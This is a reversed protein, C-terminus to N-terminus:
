ESGIRVREQAQRMRKTVHEVSWEPDHGGAILEGAMEQVAEQTIAESHDRKRLYDNFASFSARQRISQNTCETWQERAKQM